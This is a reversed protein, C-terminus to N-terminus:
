FVIKKKKRNLFHHAPLDGMEPESGPRVMAHWLFCTWHQIEQMFCPLVHFLHLSRNNDVAPILGERGGERGGERWGDMWGDRGGERGGDRGGKREEENIVKRGRLKKIEKGEKAGGGGGGGDTSAYATSTHEDSSVYPCLLQILSSLHVDQLNDGGHPLVSSPHNLGPFLIDKKM